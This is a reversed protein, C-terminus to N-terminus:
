ESVDEAVETGEPMDPRNIIPIINTGFMANVKECSEKLTEIWVESRIFTEANGADVEASIMREKKEDIMKVGIERYFDVLTTRRAELLDGLVYNTKVDRDFQFWPPQEPNVKDRMVKEDIIVDDGNIIKERIAQMTRASKDSSAILAYALRSNRAASKISTDIEKLEAAYKTVIDFVGTYDPTLKVLETEVGIKLPRQFSFYPTAITIGSPQYQLGFGTVRGPQPVIGYEASRFVALYGLMYLGYKFADKDWGYQGPAKEPLNEFDILATLRQFLSRTWYDMSANPANNLYPPANYMGGYTYYM